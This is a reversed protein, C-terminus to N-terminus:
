RPSSRPIASRRWGPSSSGTRFSSSCSSDSRWPSGRRGPAVPATLTLLRVEERGLREEIKALERSRGILPTVPTPLNSSNLSKLPPVDDSGVQFIRLPESLDKFRHEGLDRLEVDEDLLDRTARSLLV